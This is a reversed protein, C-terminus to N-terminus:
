IVQREDHPREQRFQQLSALSYDSLPRILPHEELFEFPQQQQEAQRKLLARITRLRYAGHALATQCARELSEVRHKGALAKLGVLV